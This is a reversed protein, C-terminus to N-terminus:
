VRKGRSFLPAAITKMSKVMHQVAFDLLSPEVDALTFYFDEVPLALVGDSQVARLSKEVLSQPWSFIPSDQNISVNKTIWQVRKWESGLRGSEEEILAFGKDVSDESLSCIYAGVKDGRSQQHPLVCVPSVALWRATGLVVAMGKQLKSREEAVEFCTTDRLM